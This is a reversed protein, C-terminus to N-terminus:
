QYRYKQITNHKILKIFIESFHSITYLIYSLYTMIAFFMNIILIRNSVGIIFLVIVNITMVIVACQYIRLIINNKKM